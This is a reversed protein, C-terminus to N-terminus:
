HAVSPAMPKVNLYVGIVMFIVGMVGMAYNGALEIKERRTPPTQPSQRRDHHYNAINMMAPCIFNMLSGILAGSFSAVKGVNSVQLAAFTIASLIGLTAPVFLRNRTDESTGVLDFISDRLATFTLPYTCVIGLGIAVRALTALFDRNSYNNLILGSANGGFTLFGVWSVFIYVAVAFSFAAIVVKNYKPLTPEKLEVWFKPANYHAVYATSLLSVLMFIM